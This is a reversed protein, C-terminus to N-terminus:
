LTYPQGSIYSLPMTGAQCACPQLKPVLFFHKAIDKVKVNVPWEHVPEVPAADARLAIDITIGWVPCLKDAKM